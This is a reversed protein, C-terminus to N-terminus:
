RMVQNTASGYDYREKLLLSTAESKYAQGKLPRLELVSIFPTGFNTNVLCVYIQDSSPIHLIETDVTDLANKIIVTKWLDVGIYLDFTPLDNKSDYNGYM